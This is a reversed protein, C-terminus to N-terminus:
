FLYKVKSTTGDQHREILWGDSIDYIPEGKGWTESEVQQLMDPDMPRNNIEAIIADVEADSPALENENVEGDNMFIIEHSNEDVLLTTLPKDVRYHYQEDLIGVEGNVVSYEDFTEPLGNIWNKLEILKM